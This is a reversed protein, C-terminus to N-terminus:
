SALRLQHGSYLKVNTYRFSIEKKKFDSQYQAPVIQNVRNDLYQKVEGVTVTKDPHIDFVLNNKSCGANSYNDPKGLMDPCLIAFYLDYFSKIDGKYPKLYKYVWDLQEVNSMSALTSLKINVGGITKYDVSSNNACFQILGVCGFPNPKSASFTSASEWDILFMLWNPLTGLNGSIEIIKEEFSLKNGQVKNIFLLAM